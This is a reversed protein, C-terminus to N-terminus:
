RRLLSFMESLRNTVDGELWRGELPERVATFSLLLKNGYAVILTETRPAM